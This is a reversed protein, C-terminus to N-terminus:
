KKLTATTQESDATAQTIKVNLVDITERAAALDKNLQENEAKVAACPDVPPIPIVDGFRQNRQPRGRGKWTLPVSYSNNTNVNQNANANQTLTKSHNAYNTEASANNDRVKGTGQFGTSAFAVNGGLVENDYCDLNKGGLEAMIRVYHNANWQATTIVPAQIHNRRFITGGGKDLPVSFAM